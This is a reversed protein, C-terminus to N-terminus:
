NLAMSSPGARASCQVASTPSIFQWSSCAFNFSHQASLIGNVGECELNVDVSLIPQQRGLEPVCCARALCLLLSSPASFWNSFHLLDPLFSSASCM